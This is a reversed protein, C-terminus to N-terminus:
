LRSVAAEGVKRRRLKRILVSLGNAEITEGGEFYGAKQRACWDAFRMNPEM